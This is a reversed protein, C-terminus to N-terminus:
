RKKILINPMLAFLIRGVEKQLVYTDTYRETQTESNAPDGWKFEVLGTVVATSGSVKVKQQSHIQSFPHWFKKMDVLFQNKSISSGEPVTFNYEDALLSAAKTTDGDVIAKALQKETELIQKESTQSFVSHSLLAILFTIKRM